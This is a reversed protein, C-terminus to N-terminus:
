SISGSFQNNTECILEEMAKV